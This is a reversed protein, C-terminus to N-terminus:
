RGHTVYVAYQQISTAPNIATTGMNCLTDNSATISITPEIWITSVIPAGSCHLSSDAHITWPTITYVVQHAAIDNNTLTQRIAM